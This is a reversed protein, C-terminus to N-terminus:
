LMGPSIPIASTSGTVSSRSGPVAMPLGTRFSDLTSGQRRSSAEREALDILFDGKGCGVELVTSLRHRTVLDDIVGDSFDRFRPSYAQSEETPVSYDVLSADFLTNQIFGCARCVALSVNGMPYELASDEDDLLICSQTPIGRVEYFGHLETAGCAQCTTRWPYEQSM